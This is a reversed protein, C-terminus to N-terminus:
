IVTDNVLHGAFLSFMGINAGVDFICDGPKLVVGHRLYIQEEFIEKYSFDTENKNHHRIIMGNPLEYYQQSNFWNRKEFSLFQRVTFARKSDPTLYAVPHKDGTKDERVFIACKEVAPHQTVVAEIEELEVRIGRIKVQNDVRGLFEITGDKVFRVLDGTKYLREGPLDSFAHPIFKEATLDARDLYGRALGAGGIHLEGPTGIPVLNQHSDLVYIQINSIPRGIPATEKAEGIQFEQVSCWVTGETPGYENFLTPPAVLQFHRDILRPPCAEGAVIVNKLSALHLPASQDLLLSYLSPLSLMDTIRHREILGGLSPLDLQQQDRPIVLAGGQCLTWFIGAVSSDFSVSSLLLFSGVPQRYYLRRASTSHVVNRHTVSVGKPNGTSGSTYIVYALSDIEMAAQPNETKELSLSDWDSDLCILHA